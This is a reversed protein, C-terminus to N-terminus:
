PKKSSKEALHNLWVGVGALPTGIIATVVWLQTPSFEYAILPSACVALACFYCLLVVPIDWHVPRFRM